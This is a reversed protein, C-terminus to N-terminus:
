NSSLYHRCCGRPVPVPVLFFIVVVRSTPASALNWQLVPYRSCASLSQALMAVSQIFLTLLYQSSTLRVVHLVITRDTSGIAARPGCSRFRHAARPYQRTEPSTHPIHHWDLLPRRSRIQDLRYAPCAIKRHNIPYCKFSCHNGGRNRLTHAAFALTFQVPLTMGAFPSCFCAPLGRPSLETGKWPSPRRM